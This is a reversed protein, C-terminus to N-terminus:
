AEEGGAFRSVWSSASHPLPWGPPAADVFVHTTSATARRTRRGSARLDCRQTGSLAQAAPWLHRVVANSFLVAGILEERLESWPLWPGAPRTVGHPVSGAAGGFWRKLTDVEFGM